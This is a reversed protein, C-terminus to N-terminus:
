ILSEIVSATIVNVSIIAQIGLDPAAKLTNELNVKQIGTTGQAELAKKIKQTGICEFGLKLMEMILTDSMVASLNNSFAVKVPDEEEFAFTVRKIRNLQEKTVGPSVAADVKAGDIGGIVGKALRGVAVAEYAVAAAMCGILQSMLLLTLGILILKHVKM